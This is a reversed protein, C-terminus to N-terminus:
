NVVQKFEASFEVRLMRVRSSWAACTVKIQRWAYPPTWLFATWGGHEALFAELHRAEERTVSLTVRYTKLDANLGAAMRQSYGDGFRVERVSPQSNVEMDPKVKWRFTKM